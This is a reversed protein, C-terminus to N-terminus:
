QLCPWSCLSIILQEPLIHTLVASAINDIGYIGECLRMKLSSKIIKM